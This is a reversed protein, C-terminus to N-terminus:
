DVMESLDANDRALKPIVFIDGYEVEKMATVYPDKIRVLM